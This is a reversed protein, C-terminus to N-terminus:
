RCLVREKGFLGSCVPHIVELRVIPGQTKELQCPNAILETRITKNVVSRIPAALELSATNKVSFGVTELYSLNFNANLMFTVFPIM